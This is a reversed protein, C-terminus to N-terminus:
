QLRMFMNRLNYNFIAFSKENGEERGISKKINDKYFQYIFKLPYNIIAYMVNKKCISILVKWSKIIKKSYVSLKKYLVM